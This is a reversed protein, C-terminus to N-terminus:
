MIIAWFINKGFEPPCTGGAGGGDGVGTAQAVNVIGNMHNVSYYCYQSVLAEYLKAQYVPTMFM